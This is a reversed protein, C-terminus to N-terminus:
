DRNAHEREEKSERLVWPLPTDSSAEVRRVVRNVSLDM